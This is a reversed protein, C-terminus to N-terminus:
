DKDDNSSVLSLIAKAKHTPFNNRYGGGQRDIRIENTPRWLTASPPSNQLLVSDIYGLLFGIAPSHSSSTSYFSLCCFLLVISDRSCYNLASGRWISGGFPMPPPTFVPKTPKNNRWKTHRGSPPRRWPSWYSRHSIRIVKTIYIVTHKNCQQALTPCRITHMRQPSVFDPPM